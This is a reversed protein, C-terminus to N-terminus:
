TASAAPPMVPSQPGAGLGRAPALRELMLATDAIPVGTLHDERGEFDSVIAQIAATYAPADREVLAEIAAAARVFAPSGERMRTAAARAADDDGQVLAAIATAYSAPASTADQPIQGAVWAADEHADGAIIAAKLAGILRGYSAPPAVQWSARYLRAAERMAEPAAADSALLALHGRREAAIADLLLDLHPGEAMPMVGLM